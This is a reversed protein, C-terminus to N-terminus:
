KTKAIRMEFILISNPPINGRAARGYALESPIYVRFSSGVSMIQTIEKWGDIVRGKGFVAKGTKEDFKDVTRGSGQELWFLDNDKTYDFMDGYLVFGRYYVGILTGFAPISGTSQHLVEYYLGSQTRTPTIKQATFYEQLIIEDKEAQSLQSIGKNKCSFLLPFVLIFFIFLRTM